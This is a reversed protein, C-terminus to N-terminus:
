KMEKDLAFIHVNFEVELTIRNTADNCVTLLKRVKKKEALM